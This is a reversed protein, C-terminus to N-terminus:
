QCAGSGLQKIGTVYSISEYLDGGERPFLGQSPYYTVEYCNGVQVAEYARKEVTFDISKPGSTTEVLYRICTSGNDGCNDHAETKDNVLVTATKAGTTITLATYGLALAGMVCLFLGACGMAVRAIKKEKRRFVAYVLGVVGLVLVSAIGVFTGMFAWLPSASYITTEM